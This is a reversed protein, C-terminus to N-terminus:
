QKEEVEFSEVGSSELFTKLTEAKALAREVTEKLQKLDRQDLAFELAEASGDAGWYGVQLTHLLVAGRPPEAVDDAFVPRIDSLVRAGRFSRENQVLLEAAAATTVITQSELLHALLDAFREGEAENELGIEPMGAVASALTSADLDGHRVQGRLALLADLVDDAEDAHDSPLSAAALRELEQVSRFHDAAGFKARFEEAEASSLQALVKLGDQYQRPVAFRRM